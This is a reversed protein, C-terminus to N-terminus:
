SSKKQIFFDTQSYILSSQTYINKFQQACGDTFDKTEIIELHNRKMDEMLAKKFSWVAFKGHDTDDSVILHSIKVRLQLLSFHSRLKASTIKSSKM